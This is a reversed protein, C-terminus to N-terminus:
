HQATEAGGVVQGLLSESVHRQWVCVHKYAGPRERGGPSSDINFCYSAAATHHGLRVYAGQHGGQHTTVVLQGYRRRVHLLPHCLISPELHSVSLPGLSSEFYSPTECLM